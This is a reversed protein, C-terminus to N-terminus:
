LPGVYFSFHLLYLSEFVTVSLLIKGNRNLANRIRGSTNTLRIVLIALVGIVRSTYM